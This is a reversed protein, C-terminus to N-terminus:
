YKGRKKEKSYKGRNKLNNIQWKIQISDWFRGEGKYFLRLTSFDEMCYIGIEIFVM